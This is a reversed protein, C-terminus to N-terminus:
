IYLSVSDFIPSYITSIVSSSSLLPYYIYTGFFNSYILNHFLKALTQDSISPFDTTEFLVSVLKKHGFTIAALLPFQEQNEPIFGLTPNVALIMQVIETAGYQAAVTIATLGYMNQLALDNNQLRELLKRVFAVRNMSSAVHLPTDLTLTIASRLIDNCGDVINSAARWDGKMAAKYMPVCKEMFFATM